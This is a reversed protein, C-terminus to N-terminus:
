SLYRDLEPHKACWWEELTLQVLPHLHAHAPELESRHACVSRPVWFGAAPGAEPPYVLWAKATGSQQRFCGKRM